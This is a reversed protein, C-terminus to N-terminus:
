SKINMEISKTAWIELSDWTNVHQAQALNHFQFHLM